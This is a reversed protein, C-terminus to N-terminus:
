WVLIVITEMGGQIVLANGQVITALEVMAVAVTRSASRETKRLKVSKKVSHDEGAGQACVCELETIVSQETRVTAFRIAAKDM